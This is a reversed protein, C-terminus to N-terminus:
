PQVSVYQNTSFTKLSFTGNPHWEMWFQEWGGIAPRNWNCERGGGAEACLFNGDECQFSVTGNANRILRHTEWGGVTPRNAHVGQGGGNDACFFGQWSQFAIRDGAAHLLLFTEWPGVAGRDAVVGGTEHPHGLTGLLGGFAGIVVGAPGALALAAAAGLLSGFVHPDVGLEQRLRNALGNLLDFPSAWLPTVIVVSTSLVGSLNVGRSGGIMNVVQVLGIAPILFARIADAYVGPPINPLRQHLHEVEDNSLRLQWVANETSFDAMAGEM